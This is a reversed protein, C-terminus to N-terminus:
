EILLYDEHYFNHVKECEGDKLIEIFYEDSLSFEGLLFRKPPVMGSNIAQGLSDVVNFSTSDRSHNYIIFNRRFGVEKVKYPKDACAHELLPILELEDFFAEPELEKDKNRISKIKWLLAVSSTRILSADWVNEDLQLNYYHVVKNRHIPNNLAYNIAMEISLSDQRFAWPLEDVIEKTRSMALELAESEWYKQSEIRTKLVHLQPILHQYRRPMQKEMSIIENLREELFNITRTGFDRSILRPNERILEATVMEKKFLRQISDMVYGYRLFSNCERVNTELEQEFLTFVREVENHIKRQENWNNVQLALLIGIMVLLIEGIAYKLYNATKGESLLQKRLRGFLKIM